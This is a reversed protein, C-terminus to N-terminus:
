SRTAEIPQLIHDTNMLGVLREGLHVSGTVYDAQTKDTTSLPPEVWHAEIEAIDGIEDVIMATTCEENQIVIAPSGEADRAVGLQMLAAIDIVSVIEGRINVVGRVFSPVCPIPTVAYDQDIERVDDVEVAYWEKDLRFLLIAMQDSAEEEEAEQALSEARRLLVEEVDTPTGSIAIGEETM